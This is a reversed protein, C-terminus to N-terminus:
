SPKIKKSLRIFRLDFDGMRVGPMKSVKIARQCIFHAEKYMKIRELLIMLREWYLSATPTTQGLIELYCIISQTIDKKELAEAEMRMKSYEDFNKDFDTIGKKDDINEVDIKYKMFAAIIDNKHFCIDKKTKKPKPTPKIKGQKRLQALEQKTLEHTAELFVNMDRKLKFCDQVQPVPIKVDISYNAFINNDVVPLRKIEHPTIYDKLNVTNKGTKDTLLLDLNKLFMDYYKKIYTRKRFEFTRAMRVIDKVTLPIDFSYAGLLFLNHSFIYEFENDQNLSYFFDKAYEGHEKLLSALVIANGTYKQFSQNKHVKRLKLIVSMARDFDGELLHRELGYYLLFVYGIDINTQYPNTLFQLYGWRQEPTLELHGQESSTAVYCPYYPLKEIKSIDQAKKIKASTFVISPEITGYYEYVFACGAIKYEYTKQPPYNM